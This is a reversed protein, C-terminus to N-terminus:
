RLGLFALVALVVVIVGIIYFINMPEGLPRRLRGCASPAAEHCKVAKFGFKGLSPTRGTLGASCHPSCSGTVSM